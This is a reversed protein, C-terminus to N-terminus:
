ASCTRREVGWFIEGKSLTPRALAHVCVFVFVCVVGLLPTSHLFLAAIGWKRKWGTAHQRGPGRTFIDLILSLRAQETDFTRSLTSILHSYNWGLHNIPNLQIHAHGPGETVTEQVVVSGLVPFSFSLAPSPISLFFSSSLPFSLSRTHICFSFQSM